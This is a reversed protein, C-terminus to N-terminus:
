VTPKRGKIRPLKLKPKQLSNNMLVGGKHIEKHCHLHILELNNYNSKKRSKSTAKVHHINWPKQLKGRCIPCFGKQKKYLKATSPNINADYGRELWYTDDFNLTSYGLKVLPPKKKKVDRYKVLGELWFINSYSKYLRRQLQKAKKFNGQVFHKYIRKQLNIVTKQAKGRIPGSFTVEPTIVTTM